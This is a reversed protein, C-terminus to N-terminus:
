LSCEKAADGIHKSYYEILKLGTNYRPDTTEGRALRNIHQYNCGVAKAVNSLSQHKRLRLILIQWDIYMNM